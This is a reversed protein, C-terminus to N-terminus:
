SFYAPPCRRPRYVVEVSSYNMLPDLNDHMTTSNYIEGRYDKYYYENLTFPAANEMDLLWKIRQLVSAQCKSLVDNM